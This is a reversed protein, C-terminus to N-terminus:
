AAHGGMGLGAYCLHVPEDPRGAFSAAAEFRLAGRALLPKGVPKRAVREPAGDPQHYCCALENFGFIAIEDPELPM